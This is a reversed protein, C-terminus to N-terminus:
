WVHAYAASRVACHAHQRARCDARAALARLHQDHPGRRLPCTQPCADTQTQGHHRGARTDDLVPLSGRALLGRRYEGARCSRDPSEAGAHGRVNDM